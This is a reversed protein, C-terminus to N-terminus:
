LIIPAVLVFGVLRRGKRSGLIRLHRKGMLGHRCFHTGHLSLLPLVKATLCQLWRPSDVSAVVSQRRTGREEQQSSTAGRWASSGGMQTRSRRQLTVKGSRGHLISDVDSVRGAKGLCVDALTLHASAHSAPGRCSEWGQPCALAPREPPSFTGLPTCCDDWCGPSALSLATLDAWTM